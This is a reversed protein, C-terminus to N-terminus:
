RRRRRSRGVTSDSASRKEPVSSLIRMDRVDQLPGYTNQRDRAAEEEIAHRNAIQSMQESLQRIRRLQEELFSDGM